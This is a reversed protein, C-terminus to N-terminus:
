SLTQLARWENMLRKIKKAPLNYSRLQSLLGREEAALNKAAWSSILPAVLTATRMEVAVAFSKNEALKFLDGDPLEIFSNKTADVIFQRWLQPTLEGKLLLLSEVLKAAIGEATLKSSASLKKSFERDGVWNNRDFFDAFVLLIEFSLKNQIEKRM